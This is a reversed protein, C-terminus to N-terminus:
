RIQRFVQIKLFYFKNKIEKESKKGCKSSTLSNVSTDCLNHIPLLAMYQMYQSSIVLVFYTRNTILGDAM